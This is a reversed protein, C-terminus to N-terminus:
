GPPSARAPGAAGQQRLVRLHLGLVAVQLDLWAEEARDAFRLRVLRQRVVGVVRRILGAEVVGKVVRHGVDGDIHVAVPEVTAVDVVVILLRWPRRM